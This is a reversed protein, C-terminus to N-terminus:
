LNFFIWSFFFINFSFFSVSRAKRFAAPTSYSGALRRASSFSSSRRKSYSRQLLLGLHCHTLQDLEPCAKQISLPEENPTNAQSSWQNHNKGLILVRPTHKPPTHFCFFSVLLLRTEKATPLVEGKCWDVVM